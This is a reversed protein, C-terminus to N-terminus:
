STEHTVGRCQDMDRSVQRLFSTTVVIVPDFRGRIRVAYTTWTSNGGRSMRLCYQALSHGEAADKTVLLVAIMYRVELHGVGANTPSPVVRVYGEPLFDSNEAISTLLAASLPVRDLFPARIDFLKGALDAKVARVTVPTDPALPLLVFNPHSKVGYFSDDLWAFIAPLWTPEPTMADVSIVTPLSGPDSPEPGAKVPAPQRRRGRM